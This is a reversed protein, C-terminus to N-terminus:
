VGGLLVDLMGRSALGILVPMLGQLPVKKLLEQGLDFRFPSGNLRRHLLITPAPINTPRMFQCAHKSTGRSEM